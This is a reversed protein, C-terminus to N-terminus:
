ERNKRSKMADTVMPTILTILAVILFAATIPRTLITPISGSSMILARRLNNEAMSGLIIGIVIPSMSFDLKTLIYGIIGFIVM